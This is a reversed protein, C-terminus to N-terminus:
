NQQTGLERTPKLIGSMICTVFTNQVVDISPSRGPVYWRYIGNCANLIYDSLLEPDGSNIAGRTQGERVIQVFLDQYKYRLKQISTRRRYPLHDYERFFIGVPIQNHVIYEIHAAVGRRLKEEPENGVQIEKCVFALGKQICESLLKYLLDEKSSIYYYLSGKLMGVGNAIDETTTAHYGKEYFCLAAADLIQQMHGNSKSKKAM